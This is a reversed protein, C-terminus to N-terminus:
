RIVGLERLKKEVLEGVQKYTVFELPNVTEVIYKLESVNDSTLTRQLQQKIYQVDEQMRMLEERMRLVQDQLEQVRSKDVSSGGGIREKLINLKKSL